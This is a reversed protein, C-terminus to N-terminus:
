LSWDIPFSGSARRTSLPQSFSRSTRNVAVVVSSLSGPLRILGNGAAAAMGNRTKLMM